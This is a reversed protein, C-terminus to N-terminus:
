VSLRALIRNLVPITGPKVFGQGRTFHFHIPCLPLFLEKRQLLVFARGVALEQTPPVPSVGSSSWKVPLLINKLAKGEWAESLPTAVLRLSFPFSLSVNFTQRDPSPASVTTAASAPFLPSFSYASFTFSVLQAWREWASLGWFLAFPFFHIFNFTFM